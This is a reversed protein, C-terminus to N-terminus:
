NAHAFFSFLFPSFSVSPLWLISTTDGANIITILDTTYTDQVSWGEIGASARLLAINDILMGHEAQLDLNDNIAERSHQRRFALLAEIASEEPTGQRTFYSGSANTVMGYYRGVPDVFGSIGGNTSRAVSTRAEIARFAMAMKCTLISQNRQLLGENAMTIIIPKRSEPSPTALMVGSSDSFLIESCVAVVFTHEHIPMIVRESGSTLNSVSEIWRRAPALWGLTKLWVDSGGPMTEAGPFLRMKFQSYTPKLSGPVYMSAANREEFYNPWPDGRITQHSMGVLVPVGLNSVWNRFRDHQHIHKTRFRDWEAALRTHDVTERSTDSFMLPDFPARLYAYNFLPLGPVKEPWVILDPPARSAAAAESLRLLDAFLVTGDYDKESNQFQIGDSQLVAIRPGAELAQLTQGIRLQGYGYIALWAFSIVVGGPLMACRVRTQTSGKALLFDLLVGNMAAIAFSVLLPGGLDAIQIMWTQQHCAFGLVAFPLGTPGVLRLAEAGVWAVPLVWVMRFGQRKGEFVALAVASLTLANLVILTYTASHDFVTLAHLHIRLAVSGGFFGLLLCGVRSRCLTCAFAFPLPAFLIAPWWRFYGVELLFGSLAILAGLLMCRMAAQM